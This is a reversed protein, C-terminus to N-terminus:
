VPLSWGYVLRLRAPRHRLVQRRRYLHRAARTLSKSMVATGMSPRSQRTRCKWGTSMSFSDMILYEANVDLTIVGSVPAPFDAASWVQKVSTPQRLFEHDDDWTAMESLIYEGDSVTFGPYLPTTTVTTTSHILEWPDADIKAYYDAGADQMVIRVRIVAKIELGSKAAVIFTGNEYIDIRQETTSSQAIFMGHDFASFSSGSYSSETWGVFIGEDAAAPSPDAFKSCDVLCEFTRGRKRALGNTGYFLHDWGPSTRDRTFEFIGDNRITAGTLNGFDQASMNLPYAYGNGRQYRNLSNYNGDTIVTLSTAQRVLGGTFGAGLPVRLQTTPDAVFNALEKATKGGTGNFLIVGNDAVLPAPGVMDGLGAGASFSLGGAGNTVVAHGSLGDESPLTWIVDAAISDPAKFGVVNSGNAALEAFGINGTQGAGSGYPDIRIAEPAVPNVSLSEINSLAGSASVVAGSAEVERSNTGVFRPIQGVTSLAPALMLDAIARASWGFVASGDTILATGAAGDTDPLVMEVSAAMSDPAKFGFFESGNAALERFRFQGTEGAGTGFPLLTVGGSGTSTISSAALGDFEDITVGSFEIANEAGNVRPVKTTQGSYSGPTDSLGIYTFGSATIFDQFVGPSSQWSLGLPSDVRAFKDVHAADQFATDATRAGIDAYVRDPVAHREGAPLDKHETM